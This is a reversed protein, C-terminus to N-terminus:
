SWPHRFAQEGDAVLDVLGTLPTVELVPIGAILLGHELALPVRNSVVLRLLLGTALHGLLGAVWTRSTSRGGNPPYSAAVDPSGPKQPDRRVCGCEEGPAPMDSM